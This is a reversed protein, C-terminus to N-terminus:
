FGIAVHHREEAECGNRSTGLHHRRYAFQAATWEFRVREKVVAIGPRGNLWGCDDAYRLCAAAVLPLVGLPIGDIIATIQADGPPLPAAPPPPAGAVLAVVVPAVPAAAGGFLEDAYRNALTRANDPNNVYQLAEYYKDTARTATSFKGLSYTLFRTKSASAHKAMEAMEADTTPVDYTMSTMPDVHMVNSHKVSTSGGVYYVVGYPSAEAEYDMHSAAVCIYATKEALRIRDLVSAPNYVGLNLTLPCSSIYLGKDDRPMPRCEASGLEGEEISFGASTAVGKVLSSGRDSSMLREFSSRPVMSTMTAVNQNVDVSDSLTQSGRMRKAGM